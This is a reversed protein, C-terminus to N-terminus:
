PLFRHPQKIQPRTLVFHRDKLVYIANGGAGPSEAAKIVAGEKTVQLDVERGAVPCVRDIGSEMETHDMWKCDQQRTLERGERDFITIVDWGPGHACFGITAHAIIEDDGDGDIDRLDLNAAHANVLLLPADWQVGAMEGAQRVYVVRAFSDFENGEHLLAIIATDRLASKRVYIEYQLKVVATETDMSEATGKVPILRAKNPLEEKLLVLEHPSLPRQSSDSAEVIDVDVKLATWSVKFPRGRGTFVDDPVLFAWRENSLIQFGQANINKITQVSDQGSTCQIKAFDGLFDDYVLTRKGINTDICHIIGDAPGVGLHKISLGKATPVGRGMAIVIIVVRVHNLLM